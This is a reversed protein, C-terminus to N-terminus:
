RAGGRNRKARRHHKRHRAVCKGHRRVKGKACPRRTVPPEEAVNGAGEFSSSGPTPDNPPSVPPQCAEGQCEGRQTESEAPIGGFERADYLDILDDRDKLALRDRTTFFVNRGSEDAALFNSDVAEHGASILSVCGGEEECSGVGEPEYEYVDEVGENTDALSLSDSSDFILRGSDFLYRSQPPSPSGSKVLRLTSRGLPRAGTPNCSPCSLEGTQSDFFFVELCPVETFSGKNNQECPGVNDYGTLPAQSLFTLYRAKPSAEAFRKSPLPVWDGGLSGGINIANDAPLLTAVFRTTGKDWSYLNDKTAQAAECIKGGRVGERCSEEAGTLVATDVFYLHTLDNSQGVLGVFGGKGNTLDTTTKAELDYVRGNALLVRSGDSAAALFGASPGSGPIERTAKADERVFVKGAENSWFARRGDASIAHASGVGFFGPSASANGPAVSVLRLQGTSREWEYLDCPHGGCTEGGAVEPAAPATATKATLADNAAFFVRSLDASAGAYALHFQGASRHPPQTVLLPSVAFPFTTPQAYLNEFEEPAEPSLSPALGLNQSLVGEGLDESFAQYTAGTRSLPLSPTPDVTQWGTNPDRRAVYENALTAGETGFASGEYAIANGDPASQMVFDGLFAGPKCEYDCSYAWPQAPFVEGGNKQAPSVLEWARHDPLGPLTAPFTHLAQAEGEVACVKAPEAPACNSEAVARYRYATDPSLGAVTASISLAEKRNPLTGGGLPAEAAGAFSGADEEYQAQTEYEFRWSTEIGEPNVEAHLEASSATVKAVAEGEVKAPRPAAKPPAFVYGLASQGPEGTGLTLPPVPGPAGGYLIGPARLAEVKDVPDFALGTLEAREPTVEFQGVEAEGKPGEFKGTAPNCPGLQHVTKTQFGESVKTSYFFPEGTLPNVTISTIGGKQFRYTCAPPDAPHAPDYAEVFASEAVVYLNGAADAVPHFAVHGSTVALDEGTGAYEYEGPGNRKFAMLRGLHLGLAEKDAFYITGRVGVAIGEPANSGQGHIKAPSEAITEGFPAIEGFRGLEESGDATFAAIAKRGTESTSHYVIVEGTEQNVEVDRTTAGSKVRPQCPHEAKGEGDVGLLPGCRNNPEGAKSPITWAEEFQLGGEKPFFMVVAEGANQQLTEANAYVTGKPVGGAGTYNVAMGAVGGLQTEETFVKEKKGTFPNEIEETVPKCAEQLGFAPGGAFCGVGELTAASALAAFTLLCLCLALAGLIAKATTHGRSTGHGRM